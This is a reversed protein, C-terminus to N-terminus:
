RSGGVADTASYTLTCRCNPEGPAQLGNSFPANVEQQEGDMAAHEDRVRGDGASLWTKIVTRGSREGYTAMSQRQAGNWARTTETRAVMKARDHSFAPLESLRDVMRGITDGEALGRQVAAAVLKGTTQGMVEALFAGERSAFEHLGPQLLDFGVSIRAALTRVAQGGTTLLLPEIISRMRAKSKRLMDGLALQFEDSSDRSIAKAASLTERALRTVDARQTQLEAFISAEWAPENAKTARDFEAWVGKREVRRARLEAKADEEADDEPEDNGADDEPEDDDAADDDSSTPFAGFSVLGQIREGDEGGIREKGTFLRREDVTWIGANMAQIRARREDDEQLARVGATDFRISLAGREREDETLLARTLAGAYDTWLPVITDSYAQRQMQEAQSWPSNRLGVLWGLVIPPIGFTAGISAEVRDLVEAPVLDAMGLAARSFSTGGKVVLPNGARAPGAHWAGIASKFAAWEAETPNWNPDPSVIGGPFMARLMYNRLMRTVSHGLNVSQLAVELRSTPAHWSAGLRERFHVVDARDVRVFRGGVKVAYEGYIRDATAKVTFELASFPVLAVPQGQPNRDIKWLAGGSGDRYRQTVDLLEGLSLDPHPNAFLRSLPHTRVWDHGEQTERAVWLPAEAIRKARWDMATFAYASTVAATQANLTEAEPTVDGSLEILRTWDPSGVFSVGSVGSAMKSELEEVKARLNAVVADPRDSRGGLFKAVRALAGPKMSGEDATAMDERTRSQRLM